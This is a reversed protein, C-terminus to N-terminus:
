NMALLQFDKQKHILTQQLWTSHMGEVSDIASYDIIHLSMLGSYREANNGFTTCHLTSIHLANLRM